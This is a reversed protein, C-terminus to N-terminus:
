SKGTYKFPKQLTMLGHTTTELIITTWQKVLENNFESTGITAEVSDRIIMSVEDTVFQNQLLSNLFWKWLVIGPNRVERSAESDDAM